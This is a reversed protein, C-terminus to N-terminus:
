SYKIRPDFFAYTMDVALNILVFVVALFLTAVQVVPYDRNFIGQLMTWGIGPLGFIQEIIISGGFLAGLQIGIITIVPIFANKLAHRYLIANRSLGKAWATRIYDQRLVELMAARVMRMEVAMLQVSLALAPLFMQKLNGWPDTLPSVWIVSPVWRFVLSTFLLFLTALWFSPVSLGILGTVRAWFDLQSNRRVASIVGLPIAVIISLLIALISLELTIPLARLIQDTIPERSRFSKGLDGGAMQLLWKGYQVPWPDNLGFSERLEYKEQDTVTPDLGVLADVIDGPLLRVMAFILFSMGVLTPILSALRRLLYKNMLRRSFLFHPFDPFDSKTGRTM